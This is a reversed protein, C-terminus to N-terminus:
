NIFKSSDDGMEGTSWADSPEPFLVARKLHMEYDAALATFATLAENRSPFACEEWEGDVEIKLVWRNV